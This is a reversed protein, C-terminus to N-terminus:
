DRDLVRRSLEGFTFFQLRTNIRFRIRQRRNSSAFLALLQRRSVTLLHTPRELHLTHHNPNGVTARKHLTRCSHEKRRAQSVHAPSPIISGTGISTSPITDTLDFASNRWSWHFRYEPQHKKTKNLVQRTKSIEYRMSTSHPGPQNCTLHGFRDCLENGFQGLDLKRTSIRM